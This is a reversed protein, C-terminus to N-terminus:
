HLMQSVVTAPYEIIKTREGQTTPNESILLDGEASWIISLQSTGPFEEIQVNKSGDVTSIYVERKAYNEFDKTYISKFYAILNGDVSIIGESFDDVGNIFHHIETASLNGGSDVIGIVLFGNEEQPAIVLKDSTPAWRNYWSGTGYKLVLLEKGDPSCIADYWYAPPAPMKITAFEQRRAASPKKVLFWKGNPAWVEGLGETMFKPNRADSDDKFVMPMKRIDHERAQYLIEGTLASISVSVVSKGSDKIEFIKEDKLLYVSVTGVKLNEISIYNGDPSLHVRHRNEQRGSFILKENQFNFDTLYFMVQGSQDKSVVLKKTPTVCEIVRDELVEPAFEKVVRGKQANTSSGGAYADFRFDGLTLCVLLIVM